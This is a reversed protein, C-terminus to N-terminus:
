ANRAATRQGRGGGGVGLGLEATWDCKKRPQKNTQTYQWHPATAAGTTKYEYESGDTSNVAEGPEAQLRNVINTGERPDTGSRNVIGVGSGGREM